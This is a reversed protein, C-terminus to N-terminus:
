LNTLISFTKQPRRKGGFFSHFLFLECLLLFSNMQENKPPFQHGWFGKRSLNVKVSKKIFRMCVM